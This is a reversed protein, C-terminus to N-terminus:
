FAQVFRFLVARSISMRSSPICVMSFPVAPRRVHLLFHLVIEHVSNKLCRQCDARPHGPPHDSIEDEAIHDIEGQIHHSAASQLALPIGENDNAGSANERPNGQQLNREWLIPEGRNGM